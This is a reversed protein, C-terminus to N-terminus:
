MIYTTYGHWLPESIAKPWQQECHCTPICFPGARPRPTNSYCATHPELCRHPFPLNQPQGFRSRTTRLASGRIKRQRKYAPNIDSICILLIAARFPDSRQHCDHLMQYLDQMSVILVSTDGGSVPKLMQHLWAVDIRHVVRYQQQQSGGWNLAPVCYVLPVRTATLAVSTATISITVIALQYM